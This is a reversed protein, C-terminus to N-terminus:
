GVNRQFLFSLISLLKRSDRLPEPYANGGATVIEKKGLSDLFRLADVASPKGKEKMCGQLGPGGARALLAAARFADVDAGVIGAAVPTHITVGIGVM